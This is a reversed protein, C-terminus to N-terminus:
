HILGFIDSEEVPGLSEQRQLLLHLPNFGVVCDSSCGVSEVADVACTLMLDTFDSM